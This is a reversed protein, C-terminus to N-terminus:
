RHSYEYFARNKERDFVVSTGGNNEHHKEFILAKPIVVFEDEGESNKIIRPHGLRGFALPTINEREDLAWKQSATAPLWEPRDTGSIQAPQPGCVILFMVAILLSFLTCAAIFLWKLSKQITM